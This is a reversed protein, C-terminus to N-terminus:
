LNKLLQQIVNWLLLYWMLFGFYERESIIQQHKPLLSNYWISYHWQHHIYKSYTQQCWDQLVCVDAAAVDFLVVAPPVPGILPLDTVGQNSKQKTWHSIPKVKLKNLWENTESEKQENKFTPKINFIISSSCVLLKVYDVDPVYIHVDFHDSWAPSWLEYKIQVIRFRSSIM